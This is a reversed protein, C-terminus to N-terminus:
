DGPSGDTQDGRSPVFRRTAVRWLQIALAAVSLAVGAALSASAAATPLALLSKSGLAVVTLWALPPVFSCFGAAFALVASGVLALPVGWAVLPGVEPRGAAPLALMLGMLLVTLAPIAPRPRCHAKLTELDM